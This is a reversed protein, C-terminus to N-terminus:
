SAGPHRLRDSEWRADGCGAAQHDRWFRQIGVARYVRHNKRGEAGFLWGDKGELPEFAEAEQVLAKMAHNKLEINRQAAAPATVFYVGAVFVGSVLCAM